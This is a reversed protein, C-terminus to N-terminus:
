AFKVADDGGKGDADYRLWGKNKQWLVHDNGDSAKKGTNFFKGKLAGVGIGDFIASDLVITDDGVEFDEIRDAWKNKLRTSFSFQDEGDGGFLTDRKKGGDLLDGGGLGQLIDKGGRGAITDAEGGGTLTEGTNTGSIDLGGVDTVTVTLTKTEVLAGDDASVEVEYSNDGDADAPMEFDPADIFSVAGTSADVQFLAADAGGTIAFAVPDGANVKAVTAVAAGNEAITVTAATEDIVANTVAVTLTKTETIIGDDVTVEVEYSNDGNADAPMEFDPADIFSVEGTTANVQFLAADAGGTITYAVTDDDYLKDVAVVATGNEAVEVVAATEDIINHEARFVTIQGSASPTGSAVVYTVGDIEATAVRAMGPISLNDGGLEAKTLTGDDAIAYARVDGSSSGGIVLYSVGDVDIVKMGSPYRPFFETDFGAITEVETLAGDVGVSFVSLGYDGSGGAILYTVGGVRATIMEFVRAIALDPTDAINSVNALSGDAPDVSFVSIGGDDQGAVFLYTIGNVVATTIARPGDLFLTGDDTFNQLNTLTGDSGLSFTSMGEDGGGAVFVYAVNGFTAMAVGRSSELELSGGDTVNDVNTLIGDEGVIFVSVGSDNAAASILYTIGGTEVTALRNVDFLELDGFDTVNDTNTLTGDANLRFVSLGDDNRGTVFVYTTGGVVATIADFTNELELVDDDTVTDTTILELAM